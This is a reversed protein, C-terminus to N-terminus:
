SEERQQKIQKKLQELETVRKRVLMDYLEPKEGRRTTKGEFYGAHHAIKYQEHGVIGVAVPNNGLAQRLFTYYKKGRTAPPVYGRRAMLLEVFLLSTSGNRDQFPHIDLMENHLTAVAIEYRADSWNEILARDIMEETRRVLDEMEERVDEGIVGVRAAGFESEENAGRIRSLQRPVVGQNNMAHLREIMEISVYPEEKLRLIEQAVAARNKHKMAEVEESTRGYVTQMAEAVDANGHTMIQRQIERAVFEDDIFDSFEAFIQDFAQAVPPERKTKMVVLDYFRMHLSYWLSANEAREPPIQKALTAMEQMLPRLIVKITELEKEQKVLEHLRDIKEFSQKALKRTDVAEGRAVLTLAAHPELGEVAHLLERRQQADEDYKQKQERSQIHREPHPIQPQQEM